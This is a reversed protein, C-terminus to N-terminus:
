FSAHSHDPVRGREWPRPFVLFACPPICAPSAGAGQGRGWEWSIPKPEVTATTPTDTNRNEPMENIGQFNARATLPDPSPAQTTAPPTATLLGQCRMPKRGKGLALDFMLLVPQHRPQHLRALRKWIHAATEGLEWGSAQVQFGRDAMWLTGSLWTLVSPTPMKEEWGCGLEGSISAGM